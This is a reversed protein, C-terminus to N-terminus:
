RKTGGTHLNWGVRIGQGGAAVQRTFRIIATYADPALIM